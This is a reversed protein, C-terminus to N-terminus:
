CVKVSMSIDSWSEFLFQYSLIRPVRDFGDNRGFLSITNLVRRQVQPDRLLCEWRFRQLIQSGSHHELGLMGIIGVLFDNEAHNLNVPRSDKHGTVVGECAFGEMEIYFDDRDAFGRELFHCVSMNVSRSTVVVLNGGGGQM